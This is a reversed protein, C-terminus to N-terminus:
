QVICSKSHSLECQLSQFRLSHKNAEVRAVKLQRTWSFHRMALHYFVFSVGSNRKSNKKKKSM